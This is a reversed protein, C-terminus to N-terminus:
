KGSQMSWNAMKVTQQMLTAITMPGVGGPVPTIFGAKKSVDDFDVDGVLHGQDSLNQGVDIVVCGDKVDSGTITNVRGTSSIIIDAPKTYESIDKTFHNLVSVSAGANILLATLPKGVINSRGIIVAKKGQLVIGYKGMLTMIGQPTCSVPYNTNDNLFLKGINLPHFGDVDKAPSISRTIKKADIDKPLPDQVLIGHITPDNNYDKIVDLLEAQSTSSPLNKVVSNIGLRTAVRDKNRVYRRSAQDDGVLIVALGPAIGYQDQFKATNIKTQQNLQKATAKGDLITTM